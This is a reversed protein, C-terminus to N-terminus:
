RRDHDIKLRLADSVWASMSEAAGAAVAAHVADILDADVTVSLRSKATM